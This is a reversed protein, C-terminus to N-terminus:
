NTANLWRFIRLLIEATNPEVHPSATRFHRPKARRSEFFGNSLMEIDTAVCRFDFGLGPFPLKPNKARDVLFGAAEVVHKQWLEPLFM